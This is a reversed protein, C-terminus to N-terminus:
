ARRILLGAHSVVLCGGSGRTGPASSRLQGAHGAAVIPRHDLEKEVIEDPEHQDDHKRHEGEGDRIEKLDANEFLACKLRTNGFDLCVTKSMYSTINVTTAPNQLNTQPKKVQFM